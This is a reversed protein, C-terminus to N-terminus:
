YAHAPDVVGTVRLGAELRRIKTAIQAVSEEILTVASVHPTVVIRPHHWFPSGAPLPEDVFVDLMAGAIHGEDLVAILDDDVCLPGRAINIVYAGRPLHSLTERNILGRTVPTLPLMCVLVRASRLFADLQAPGAYTLVGDVAKASRSWGAVPFGFSRLTAAVEVGLLGLGLIGVGFDAKDLRRRPRWVRERQQLAYADFDRYWHLVAHAVYESMQISMGADELRILPTAHPWHDMGLLADVGAGLNFVAKVGPLQEVLATPPKWVLAYDVRNLVTDPWRGIAADPLARALADLWAASDGPKQLLINV